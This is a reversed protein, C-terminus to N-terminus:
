EESNANALRCLSLFTTKRHGRVIPHPFAFIFADLVPVSIAFWGPVLEHLLTKKNCVLKNVRTTDTRRHIWFQFRKNNLVANTWLTMEILTWFIRLSIYRHTVKQAGIIVFLFYRRRLLFIFSFYHIIIAFTSHIRIEYIHWTSRWATQNCLMNQSKKICKIKLQSYKRIQEFNM